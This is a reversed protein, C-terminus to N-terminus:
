MDITLDFDSYGHPSFLHIHTLPTFYDCLLRGVSFFRQIERGM